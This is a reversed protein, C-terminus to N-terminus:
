QSLCHHYEYQESTCCSSGFMNQRKRSPRVVPQETCLTLLEMFMSGVGQSCVTEQYPESTRSILISSTKTAGALLLNTATVHDDASKESVSHCVLMNMLADKASELGVISDFESWEPLVFEQEQQCWSETPDKKQVHMMSGYGTDGPQPTDYQSQIRVMEPEAITLDIEGAAAAKM